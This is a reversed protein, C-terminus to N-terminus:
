GPKFVKGIGGAKMEAIVADKEELQKQLSQIKAQFVPDASTSNVVLPVEPLPQLLPEPKTVAFPEKILEPALPALWVTHLEEPARLQARSGQFGLTIELMNPKISWHARVWDCFRYLTAIWSAGSHSKPWLQQLMQSTPSQALNVGIRLVCFDNEVGIQLSPPGSTALSSSFLFSSLAQLCMQVSLRRDKLSGSFEHNLLISEILLSTRAPHDWAAYQVVTSPKLLPRLGARNQDQILAGMLRLVEPASSRHLDLLILRQFEPLADLENPKFADTFYGCVTPGSSRTLGYFAEVKKWALYRYWPLVMLAFKNKQLVELVNEQSLSPDLQQIEGLPKLAGLTKLLVRTRDATLREDLIWAIKPGPM